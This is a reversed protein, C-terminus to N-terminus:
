SGYSEHGARSRCLQLALTKLEKLDHLTFHPSQLPLISNNHTLPEEAIPFISLAVSKEWLPSQPIPSFEALYVNVGFTAAFRISAEVEEKRQEPLGALIYLGIETAKFGAMRLLEIKNGFGAVDVKRDLEAHFDTSSSEFGIRLEQFGTQKMLRAIQADMYELHIANPLYFRLNLGAALVQELFPVLVQEKKVLLADDYFAFHSIGLEKHLRSVIAFTQVPDGQQFKGSLAYSACYQCRMPCGNNIRIVAADRYLAPRLLPYDTAPHTYPLGLKQLIPLLAPFAAGAIVYDAPIEQRCHETCLTAYVGGVIIPVHPHLAKALLAAEKVGPYWYTMGSAILILDPHLATIRQRMAEGTIGYRYFNRPVAQLAAPMIAPQRLFKGTGDAKRKPVGLEAISGTDAYDLCNLFEVDYGCQEFWYGIKLLAYPKLYLDYLAFDYIPPFICLVLPKM